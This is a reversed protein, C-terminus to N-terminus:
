AKETIPFVTDPLSHLSEKYYALFHNIILKYKLQQKGNWWYGKWLALSFWTVQGNDYNEMGKQWNEKKYLGVTLTTNQHNHNSELMTTGSNCVSGQWNGLPLSIQLLM